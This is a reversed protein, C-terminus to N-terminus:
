WCVSHDELLNVERPKLNGDTIPPTQCSHRRLAEGFECERPRRNQKTVIGSVPEDHLWLPMRSKAVGYVTVWLSRQGHSKGPLFVSTPQWKRRWSIKGSWPDFQTPELYFVRSPSCGMWWLSLVCRDLSMSTDWPETRLRLLCWYYSLYYFLQTCARYGM